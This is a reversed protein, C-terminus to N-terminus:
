RVEFSNSAVSRQRGAPLGEVNTAFRYRGDALNAPLDWRDTAQGGPRLTRLEMTCVRDTAISRWGGGASMQLGSTCLNYGIDQRAGNTLTLTMTAGARASVPDARLTVGGSPEPQSAPAGPPEQPRTGPPGPAAPQPGAGAIEGATNATDAANNGTQSVECATALLLAAIALVRM